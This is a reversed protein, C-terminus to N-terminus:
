DENAKGELYRKLRSEMEMNGVRVSFILSDLASYVHYANEFVDFEDKRYSTRYHKLFVNRFLEYEQEHYSQKMWLTLRSVDAMWNLAMADDWDILTIEESSQMVDNGKSLAKGDRVIVNKKSLDGHCLVSPLNEFDRMVNLVKVRLKKLQTESVIDKLKDNFGDFEDEFFDTMSDYNAIGNGIYGYNEIRVEHVSSVLGALKVYLMIEQERDLQMKDAATGPIGHEILYGNSSAANERCYAILEAHSIGKQSLSRYVFPIKGEEPWDKSRYLKLFYQEGAVTFPYVSNNTENEIKRIEDPCCGFHSKIINEVTEMRTDAQGM